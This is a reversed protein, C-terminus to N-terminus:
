SRENQEKRVYWGKYFGKKVVVYRRYSTSFQNYPYDKENCFDKFSERSIDILEDNGNYIYLIKSKSNNNGSQNVRKTMSIKEAKEKQNVEKSIKINIDRVKDKNEAKYKILTQSTKSQIKDSTKLFDNLCSKSCVWVNKHLNGCIECPKYGLSLRRNYTKQNYMELCKDNCYDGSSLETRCFKCRPVSRYKELSNLMKKKTIDDKMPHFEKFKERSISYLKSSKIRGKESTPNVNMMNFAYILKKNGKHIKTLLYHLLFHERATVIVLNGKNNRGGLCKPIIHHREVYINDDLQRNNSTEVINNYIKQYDM